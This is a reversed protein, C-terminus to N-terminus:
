KFEKRADLRFLVFDAIWDSARNEPEFGAEVLGYNLYGARGEFGFTFYPRTESISLLM